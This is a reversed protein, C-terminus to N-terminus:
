FYYVDCFLSCMEEKRYLVSFTTIKLEQLEVPFPTGTCVCLPGKKDAAGARCLCSGESLIYTFLADNERIDIGPRGLSRM